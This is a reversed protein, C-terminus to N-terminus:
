DVANEYVWDLFESVRTYVGPLGAQACQIGWSVVGVLTWQSNEAELMLPGGSDGQCADQGGDRTGACLFVETISQTFKSKCETNNWIPLSVERLIASSPGGFSLTGWGVVTGSKGFFTEDPSKPLCIPRIHETFRVRRSLRLLAIDNHYTDKKFDPHQRIRSVNFDRPRRSDTEQKFDYEGLRVTINQPRLGQTCHAATLVYRDSILAGGCFQDDNSRRLLAAMWTWQDPKAVQGGVIRTKFNLGCSQNISSLGKPITVKPTIEQDSVSDDPFVIPANESDDSNDRDGSSSPRPTVAPRRTTPRATNVPRRTSNDSTHLPRPTDNAGHPRVPRSTGGGTNYPRRTTSSPRNHGEVFGDDQHPRSILGNHGGNDLPQGVVGTNGIHSGSGHQDQIHPPRVAHEGSGAHGGSGHQDHTYPPEAVHAGNGVHGGSGQQGQVHQPRTGHGSTGTHGGSGYDDVYPREEVHGGNGFHSGSGHPRGDHGIPERQSDTVLQDNNGPFPRSGTPPEPRNQHPVQPVAPPYAPNTPQQHVNTPRDNRNPQGFGSLNILDTVIPITPKSLPGSSLSPLAQSFFQDPCCVGMVQSEIICVYSLFLDFNNLFSPLVCQRVHRCHGPGALPTVCSQFAQFASTVPGLFATSRSLPGPIRHRNDQVQRIFSDVVNSDQIPSGHTLHNTQVAPAPEPRRGISVFPKLLGGLLGQRKERVLPTVDDGNVLACFVFVVVAANFLRAVM